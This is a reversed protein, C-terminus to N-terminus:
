HCIHQRQKASIMLDQYPSFNQIKKINKRMGKSGLSDYIDVTDWNRALESDSVGCFQKLAIQAITNSAHVGYWCHLYIPGLTGNSQIIDYIDELFTRVRSGANDSSKAEGIKRYRTTNGNCNIQSRNPTDYVSYITSFGSECLFQQTSSSLLARKRDSGGFYLVGKLVTKPRMDKGRNLPSNKMIRTSSSTKGLFQTYDAVMTQLRAHAMTSFTTFIFTMLVTKM